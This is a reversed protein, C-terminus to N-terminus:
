KDKTEFYRLPNIVSLVIFGVVVGLTNALIDFYEFSRYTTIKDQLIEIIIGFIIAIGCIWLNPKPRIIQNKSFYYLQWLVVLGFYMSFHVIKDINAISELPLSGKKFRILSVVIIVANYLLALGLVFRPKIEPTNKMIRLM